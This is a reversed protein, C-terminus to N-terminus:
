YRKLCNVWHQAVYEKRLTLTLVARKVNLRGTFKAALALDARNQVFQLRVWIKSPIEPLHDLAKGDVKRQLIETALTFLNFISHAGSAYVVDSHRREEAASSPLLVEEGANWFQDYKTADM